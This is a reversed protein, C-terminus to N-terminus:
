LNKLAWDRIAIADAENDDAPQFGRGRAEALMLEKKANGNGTWHRKITTVGVSQMRINRGACLMALIALFGGYAHAAYVGGKGHSKVDEYVVLAPEYRTMLEALQARANLWKQGQHQKKRDIACSFSGSVDGGNKSRVAWGMTTGIDICLVTPGIIERKQLPFPDLDAADTATQM